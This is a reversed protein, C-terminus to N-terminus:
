IGILFPFLVNVFRDQLGIGLDDFAVIIHHRGKGGLVVTGRARRLVFQKAGQGIVDLADPVRAPLRRGRRFGVGVKVIGVLIRVMRLGFSGLLRGRGLM